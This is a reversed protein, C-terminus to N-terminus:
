HQKFEQKLSRAFAEARMLDEANPRGRNIGGFYKLFSNTNFGTCTFEGVIAYGRAQLKEKILRHNRTMQDQSMSESFLSAPAGNTSYIFAKGGAAQPLRDALRLVTEHLKEGYIGSGFGVLGYERLEEPRVEQPTRIEVDLVNAIAKAVKETNKHHYSYLVLLSGKQGM